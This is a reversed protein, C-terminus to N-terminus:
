DRRLAEIPPMKAARKAPYMGSTIGILSSFGLAILISTFNIGLYINMYAGVYYAGTVGIILGIIGGIVCLIVSETLFQFLITSTKAGLAKRIGIERTRETVSVLMINMVGIGGVILSIASVAAIFTTFISIVSDLLDIMTAMNTAIYLDDSFNNHRAKLLNVAVDGVEDLYNENAGIYCMEYRNSSGSFRGTFTTPMALMVPNEGGMISSGSSLGSSSAFSMMSTEVIGIIKVSISKEGSSLTVKQGVANEFGFLNQASMKDIVAVAKGSKYEDETFMRGYDFKVNIVKDLDTNGGIIIAYSDNSQFKVNGFAMSFPSVSKVGELNKIAAIDEDTIYDNASAKSSQVTISVVNSSMDRIMNVIFDRGGNGVTIISIVSAVGIIIGLMTLISRLMNSKISYIAIKINEKMNMQM